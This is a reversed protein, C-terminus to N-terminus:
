QSWPTVSFPAPVPQHIFKWILLRRARTPKPDTSIPATPDNRFIAGKRGTRYRWLGVLESSLIESLVPGGDLFCDLARAVLKRNDTTLASDAGLLFLVVAFAIEDYGSFQVKPGTNTEIIKLM